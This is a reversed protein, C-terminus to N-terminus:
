SEDEEEELLVRWAIQSGIRKETKIFIWSGRQYATDDNHCFPKVGILAEIEATSLLIGAEMARTLEWHHWLPSRAAVTPLRPPQVAALAEPLQAMAAEVSAKVCTEVLFALQTTDPQGTSMEIQGSPMDDGRDLQCLPFDNMKGGDQIHGHLEDLSRLDAANVYSNKGERSPKIGLAELRNYVAQKGIEYRSQLETVPYNDVEIDMMLVLEISM